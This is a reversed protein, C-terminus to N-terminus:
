QPEINSASALSSESRRARQVREVIRYYGMRASLSLAEDLLAGGSKPDGRQILIDGIQVRLAIKHLSHGFRSAVAMADCAHKLAADFEGSELMLRSLSSSAEIRVRYSDTLAAYRLARDIDALVAKREHANGLTRRSLDARLLRARYSMDMQHAADAAAVALAVQRKMMGDDHAIQRLSAYHRQFLAYSRQEGLRRLISISREYFGKATKEHGRNQGILGRYGTV